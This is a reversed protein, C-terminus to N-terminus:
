NKDTQAEERRWKCPGSPRKQGLLALGRDLREKKNKM